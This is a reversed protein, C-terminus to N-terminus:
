ATGTFWDPGNVTASAPALMPRVPRINRDTHGM